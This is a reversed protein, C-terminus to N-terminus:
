GFFSPENWELISKKKKKKQIVLFQIITLVKYM